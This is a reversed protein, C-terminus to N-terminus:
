VSSVRAEVSPPMAAGVLKDPPRERRVYRPKRVSSQPRPIMAAAERPQLAPAKNRRCCFSPLKSTRKLYFFGAVSLILGSSVFFTGLFLSAVVQPGGAASHRGTGPGWQSGVGGEPSARGGAGRWAPTPCPHSHGQGLDALPVLGPLAGPSGCGEGLLALHTPETQAPHSVPVQCRPHGRARSHCESSNTAAAPFSTNPCQLCSIGGDEARHQYCGARPPTPTSQEQLWHLQASRPRRPSSHAHSDHVLCGESWPRQLHTGPQRTEKCVGHPDATVQELFSRPPFGTDRKTPSQEGPERSWALEGDGPGPPLTSPRSLGKAKLPQKGPGCQGTSPCTGNVDAVEVCCQPQPVTSETSRSTVEVLVGALLIAHPLAMDRRLM